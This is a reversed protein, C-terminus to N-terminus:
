DVNFNCSDVPLILGVWVASLPMVMAAWFEVSKVTDVDESAEVWTNRVTINELKSGATVYMGSMVLGAGSFLSSLIVSTRALTNGSVSGILLFAVSLSVLFVCITFTIKWISKM